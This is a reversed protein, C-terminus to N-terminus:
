MKPNVFIECTGLSLNTTTVWDATIGMAYFFGRIQLFDWVQTANPDSVFRIIKQSHAPISMPYNTPPWTFANTQAILYRFESVSIAGHNSMVYYVEDAKPEINAGVPDNTIEINSLFAVSPTEMEGGSYLLNMQSPWESLPPVNTEVFGAGDLMERIMIAFSQVEADHTGYRVRIGFKSIDKAFKIFNTKQETTIERWRSKAELEDRAKTLKAIEANAHSLINSQAAFSADDNLKTHGNLVILRWGCLVPVLVLGAAILTCFAELWEKRHEDEETPHENLQKLTRLLWLALLFEILAAMSEFGGGLAELHIESDWFYSLLSM